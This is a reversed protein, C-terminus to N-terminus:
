GLCIVLLCLEKPKSDAPSTDPPTTAAPPPTSPSTPQQAESGSGAAPPTTSETVKSAASGATRTATDVTDTVTKRPATTLPLERPAAAADTHTDAPTTRPDAARSREHRSARDAHSPTTPTAASRPTDKDLGYQSSTPEAYTPAEGAAGGMTTDEPTAAAQVGPKANGNMAAVTLGGGVLAVATAVVARRQNKKWRAMQRRRAARGQPRAEYGEATDTDPADYADSSGSGPGEPTRAPTEDWVTGDHWTGTAAPYEWTAPGGPAAIPAPAMAPVPAVAPVRATGSRGGITSPDIDPAYAGCGPCVLAGNLHRRCSSCYDM